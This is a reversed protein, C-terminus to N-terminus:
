RWKGHSWCILPHHCSIAALDKHAQIDQYVEGNVLVKNFARDAMIGAIAFGIVMLGILLILQTKLKLSHTTNAM